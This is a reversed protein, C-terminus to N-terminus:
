RGSRLSKVLLIIFTQIYAWVDPKPASIPPTVKGSPQSAAAAAAKAAAADAAAKAAADAAAKDKAAQEAAAADAADQAAKAAAAAAAADAAAKDAAAKATAQAAQAAADAVAKAALEARFTQIYLVKVVVGPGGWAALTMWKGWWPDAVLNTGGLVMFHYGSVGAAPNHICVIAYGEPSAVQAAVHAANFGSETTTRFRDPWVRDLANDPLLDGSIFDNAAYLTDDMSAPDYHMDSYADYAVMTFSTELCGYPGLEGAGSGLAHGAWRPDRQSFIQFAM